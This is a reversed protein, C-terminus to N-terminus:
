IVMRVIDGTVSSRSQPRRLAAGGGQGEWGKWRHHQEVAGQGESGTSPCDKNTENDVPAGGVEDLNYNAGGKMEGMRRDRAEDDPQGGAEDPHRVWHRGGGNHQTIQSILM